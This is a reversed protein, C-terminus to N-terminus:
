YSRNMANWWRQPIEQQLAREYDVESCPILTHRRYNSGKISEHNIEIWWRGSKPSKYFVLEHDGEDILVTFKLYDSKSGIPYDNKRQYFGEMFYWIMQAVLQSGLAQIDLTEVYGNINFLSTKDSMGAYRAISCAEEGTLGNPGSLQHAPFDSHKIASLDFYVLDADRLLPEVEKIPRIAGLRYTDFLMKEMLAIEEKAVFYTQYGINSLNNLMYPKQLVIHSLYNEDNLPLQQEGLDFRADIGAVNIMQEYVHFARYCAYVLDNSGGFVIPVIHLKLLEECVVQLAAQTDRLNEGRYITGMDILTNEPWQGGYLHYLEERISDAGTDAGSNRLSGRDEQV